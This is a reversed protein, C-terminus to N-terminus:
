QTEGIGVQGIASAVAQDVCQDSVTIGVRNGGPDGLVQIGASVVDSDLEQARRSVILDGSECPQGLGEEASYGPDAALPRSM